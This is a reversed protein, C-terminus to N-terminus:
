FNVLCRTSTTQDNQRGGVDVAFARGVVVLVGGIAGFGLDQGIGAAGLVLLPVGREDAHLVLRVARIGVAVRVVARDGADLTGAIPLLQTEGVDDVGHEAETPEGAVLVGDLCQQAAIAEEVELEEVRALGHVVADASRELLVVRAADADGAVVMVVVGIRQVGRGIARRGGVALIDVVRMVDLDIAERVVCRFRGGGLAVRFGGRLVLMQEIFRVFLVVLGQRVARDGGVVHLEILLFGVVARDGVALVDDISGTVDFVGIGRVGVVLRQLVGTRDAHTGQRRHRGEEVVGLVLVGAFQVDAVAVAAALVVREIVGVRRVDCPLARREVVLRFRLDM